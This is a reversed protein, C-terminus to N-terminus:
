SIPSLLARGDGRHDAAAHDRLALVHYPDAHEGPRRAGPCTGVIATMGPLFSARPLTEASPSPKQSNARCPPRVKSQRGHAGLLLLLALASAVFAESRVGCGGTPAQGAAHGVSVLSAKPRLPKASALRMPAHAVMTPSSMALGAMGTLIRRGRALSPHRLLYRGTSCRAVTAGFTAPPVRVRRAVGDALRSTCCRFGRM